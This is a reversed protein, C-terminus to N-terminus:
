NSDEPGRLAEFFSPGVDLQLSGHQQILRAALEPSVHGVFDFRFGFAMEGSRGTLEHAEVDVLQEAESREINLEAALAQALTPPRPTSYDPDGWDQDLAASLVEIEANEFCRQGCRALSVAVEFQVQHGSYPRETDIGLNVQGPITARLPEHLTALDPDLEDELYVEDVGDYNAGAMASNVDDDSIVAEQMEEQVHMALASFSGHVHTDPLREKFAANVLARLQTAPIPLALEHARVSLLDFDPVVHALDDFAQPEREAAQAAQFSALSKYGLAACILQQGRSLPVPVSTNATNKRVSHALDTIGIPM